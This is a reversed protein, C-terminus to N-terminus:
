CIRVYIILLKNFQITSVKFAEFRNQYIKMNEYSKNFQQLYKDYELEHHQIRIPVVVCLLLIYCLYELVKVTKSVRVTNPM